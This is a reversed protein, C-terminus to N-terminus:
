AKVQKVSVNLVYIKVTPKGAEGASEPAGYGNIKEVVSMGSIVHGFDTYLPQLQTPGGPVLIFFQGGDSSPAGSNALAVDGVAYCNAKKTCTKPPTNGTFSYGPYRGSGTGAPDGGQDMFGKIVRHFFTGDYYHYLALFVFNNVAAYSKAADM